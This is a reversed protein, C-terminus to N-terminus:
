QEPETLSQKWEETSNFKRLRSSETPMPPLDTMRRSQKLLELALAKLKEPFKSWARYEKRRIQAIRVELTEIMAHLESDIDVEGEIAAAKLERPTIQNFIKRFAPVLEPVPPPPSTEAPKPRHVSMLKEKQFPM